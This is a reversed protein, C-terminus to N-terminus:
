VNTKSTQKQTGSRMHAHAQKRKHIQSHISTHRSTQTRGDTHAQAHLFRSLLEQLRLMRFMDNRCVEEYGKYEGTKFHRETQLCYKSQTTEHKLLQEPDRERDWFRSILQSTFSLELTTCRLLLDVVLTITHM